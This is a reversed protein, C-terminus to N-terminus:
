MGAEKHKKILLSAGERMKLHSEAAKKIHSDLLLKYVSALANIEDEPTAEPHPSYLIRTSSM